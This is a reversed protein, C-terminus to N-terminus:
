DKPNTPELGVTLMESKQAIAERLAREFVPLGDVLQSTYYEIYRNRGVVDSLLLTMENTIAAMLSSVVQTLTNHGSDVRGFRLAYETLVSVELACDWCHDVGVVDTVMHDHLSLRTVANHHAMQEEYAKSSYQRVTYGDRKSVVLRTEVGSQTTWPQLWLEGALGTFITDEEMWPLAFRLMVAEPQMLLTWHTQWVLDREIRREKSENMTGAISATLVDSIFLVSKGAWQQADADLFLQSYVVLRDGIEVLESLPAPDYVHFTHPFLELLKRFHGGPAAGAYVVTNSLHGYRMLFATETIILKRQGQHVGTRIETGRSIYPRRPAHERLVHDMALSRSAYYGRFLQDEGGVLQLWVHPSNRPNSWGTEKGYLQDLEALRQNILPNSRSQVVRMLHERQLYDATPSDM